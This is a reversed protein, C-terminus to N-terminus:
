RLPTPAVFEFGSAQSPKLRLVETILGGSNPSVRLSGYSEPLTGFQASDHIPLDMSGKAPIFYSHASGASALSTVDLDVRLTNASTNILKLYNFMGLFLNYSGSLTDSSAERAQSGYMTEIGGDDSSSRFYYMSQAAISGQPATIEASGVKDPGLAASANFHQQAQPHIKATESSIEVGQQDFFRVTVVATGGGFNLVELWNQIRAMSSIPVNLNNGGVSAILPFAFDFDGNRGYGYRMLQALYKGESVAPLIYLQGVNSPGPVQHGGDLDERGLPAVTREIIQVHNGIADRKHVNFTRPESDLNVISLWNAVLNGADAPNDSPQFTNFGVYSSGSLPKSLEVGFGFDFNSFGSGIPRYYFVRGRVGGDVRLVGYSDPRFGAYNALPYDEKTRAAITGTLTMAHEGSASYLYVEVALDSDTFNELELVNVMSLYGNWLGYISSEKPAPPPPLPSPGSPPSSPPNSGGVYSRIWSALASVRSYVGYSGAAACVDGWSVIGALKLVSNDSIVLPGGSDGQCSDKGGQTYGACLMRDTVGEQIYAASCISQAVIPVTVQRLEATYSEENNPNTLGWGIATAPVATLSSSGDYIALPQYASVTELELLAADYDETSADYQPHRIIRKVRHREGSDTQLNHIGLGVEISTESESAVCHAATLVWKSAILSGGCFQGDYPSNGRSYLVAMFPWAGPTAEVGGVIFPHVDGSDTVVVDNEAWVPTTLMLAFLAAFFISYASAM